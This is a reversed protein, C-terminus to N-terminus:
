RYRLLPTSFKSRALIEHINLSVGDAFVVNEILVDETIEYGFYIEFYNKNSDVFYLSGGNVIFTFDSSFNETLYITDVGGEDSLYDGDTFQSLHSGSKVDEANLYYADDGLGGFLSDAGAGGILQDNGAGGYLRDDDAGGNLTDSGSHGSIIDEGAFGSILDDSDFGFLLESSDTGIPKLKEKIKDLDWVVNNNFVIEKIPAEDSFAGENEFEYYGNMVFMYKLLVSGGQRFSVLIDDRDVRQLTVDAESIGADLVLRDNGTSGKITDLGDGISYHYTDNGEGGWLVDSGAGGRLM